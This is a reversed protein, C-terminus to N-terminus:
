SELMEIIDSEDIYVTVLRNAEDMVFRLRQLGWNQILNHVEKRAEYLGIRVVNETAVATYEGAARWGKLVPDKHEHIVPLRQKMYKRGFLFTLFITLFANVIAKPWNKPNM